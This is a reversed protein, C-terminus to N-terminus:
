WSHHGYFKPRDQCVNLFDGYLYTLIVGALALSKSQVSQRDSISLSHKKKLIMCPTVTSTSTNMHHVWVTYACSPWHVNNSLWGHVQPWLFQSTLDFYFSLTWLNDNSLSGHLLANSVCCLLFVHLCACVNPLCLVINCLVYLVTIYLNVQM